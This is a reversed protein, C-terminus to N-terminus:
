PVRRVGVTLSTVGSYTVAPASGFRVPDFPGIAYRQGAPVSVVSNHLVGHNCPSVAAVTVTIAGGSGNNVDLIERGTNAFTDGGVSAAALTNSAM